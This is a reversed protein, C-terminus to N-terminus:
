MGLLEDLIISVFEKAGNEKIYYLPFGLFVVEYVTGRYFIGCPIGDFGPDESLSEYYLMPETFAGELVVFANPFAPRFPNLKLTDVALSCIGTTGLFDGMFDDNENAWRIHLYDFAFSGSSYEIPFSEGEERLNFLVRWGGLFIKGGINLYEQLLNIYESLHHDQKHDAHWFITQYKSLAIKTLTSDSLDWEDYEYGNLITRYFSDVEADTPNELSGSGDRTDDVLLMTREMSPLILLIEIEAPTPDEIGTNDRSKVMITHTGNLSDFDSPILIVSTDTQWNSWPKSDVKYSYDVVEGGPDPDNGTFLLPIGEWWDSISQLVFFTDGDNPSTIETEPAVVLPTYFYREAPTPDYEDDNDVARVVFKQLNLTDSSEFIITDHGEEIFTWSTYFSDGRYLHWTIYRYEYGKIYGDTDEGKWHIELIPFYPNTSDNEPPINTLITNPPLNPNAPNIKCSFLIFSLLVVSIYLINKM